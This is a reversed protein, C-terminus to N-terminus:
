LASPRYGTAATQFTGEDVPYYREQPGSVGLHVGPQGHQETDPHKGKLGRKRAVM